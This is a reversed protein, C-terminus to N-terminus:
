IAQNSVLYLPYSRLTDLVSFARCSPLTRVFASPSKKRHVQKFFQLHAGMTASVAELFEYKKKNEITALSTMLSFRAQM